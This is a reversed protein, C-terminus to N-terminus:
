TREQQPKRRKQGALQISQPVGLFFINDLLGKHTKFDLLNYALSAEGACMRCLMQTHAVADAKSLNQFCFVNYSGHESDKEFDEAADLYYIIKGIFFGLRRLAKKDNETHGAACFVAETMKATAEAAADANQTKKHEVISQNKTQLALASDIEPQRAAAKQRMRRLVPQLVLPLLKKLFREDALDDALKYYATLVLADAALSLGDSGQCVPRTVIPNAICREACATTHSGALSDAMIALLVLDYNLFMRATFGYEKKLEKCLGCYYARYETWERVKLEPKFPLVYGFM